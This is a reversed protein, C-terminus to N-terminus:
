QSPVALHIGSVGATTVSYDIRGFKEVAKNFVNEVREYNRVDTFLALVKFDPNSAVRKAEEATKRVGAENIDAVVLGKAGYRAYSLATARGIGSATRTM